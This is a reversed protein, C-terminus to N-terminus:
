RLHSSRRSVRCESGTPQVYSSGTSRELLMAQLATFVPSQFVSHASAIYAKPDPPLPKFLIASIREGRASNRVAHVDCDTVKLSPLGMAAAYKNVESFV